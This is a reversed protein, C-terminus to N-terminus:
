GSHRAIWGDVMALSGEYALDPAGDPPLQGDLALTGIGHSLGWLLQAGQNPSPSQLGREGILRTMLEILTRAPGAAARHLDPYLARDAFDPSRMLRYLNPHDLIFRVYNGGGSALALRVDTQSAQILQKSAQLRVFGETAVAALLASRDAFHHYPAMSSVGVTRALGRLSLAAPGDCELVHLAAQILAERLEGHHYPKTM